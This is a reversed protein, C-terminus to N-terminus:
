GQKEDSEVGDAPIDVKKVKVRCALWTIVTGPIGLLLIMWRGGLIFAFMFLVSWVLATVTWFHLRARGWIGNFIVCLLAFIPLAIVFPLATAIGCLRLIIYVLASVFVCGASIVGFIAARNIVYAPKEGYDEGGVGSEGGSVAAGAPNDHEEELFYDVTVGFLDAMNKLCVVDPVGECREWKSVSKDSYGIEEALKAQTMGAGRRLATINKAIIKPLDENKVQGVFFGGKM